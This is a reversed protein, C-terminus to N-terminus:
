PNPFHREALLRLCQRLSLDVCEEKMDAATSVSSAIANDGQQRNTRPKTGVNVMRAAGTEDIHTLKAM